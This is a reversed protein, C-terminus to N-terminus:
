LSDLISQASASRGGIGAAALRADLDAGTRQNEMDQAAEIRARQTAQRQQLRELSDVASGLNSNAGQATATVSMQAKLLAEEAKASSIKRKLDEMKAQTQRVTAKMATEQAKTAEWEASVEAHTNQLGAIREAVALALDMDGKAKADRAHGLYTEIDRDLEARKDEAMKRKASVGAVADRAEFLAREIDRVEQELIRIANADVVAEGADNVAGKVAQFLNRFLSM